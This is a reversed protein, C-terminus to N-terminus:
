TVALTSLEFLSLSIIEDYVVFVSLAHGCYNNLRCGSMCFVTLVGASAFLAPTLSRSSGVCLIAISTPPVPKIFCRM